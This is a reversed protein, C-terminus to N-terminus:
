DPLRRNRARLCDLRRLPGARIAKTQPGQTLQTQNTGDANMTWLDSINPADRGFVLKQGDQSWAPDRDIQPNDTLRTAGTGDANMVYIEPNGDRSSVFAIKQGDPSWAPDSGETLLTEDTGDANMVFVGTGTLEPRHFGTFAIKGNGGPFTALATDAVILFAVSALLTLLTFRASRGITNGELAQLGLRASPKAAPM